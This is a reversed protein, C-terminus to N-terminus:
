AHSVGESLQIQKKHEKLHSALNRIEILSHCYPCEAENELGKNFESDRSSYSRSPVTRSNQKESTRSARIRRRVNNQPIPLRTPIKTEEIILILGMRLASLLDRELRFKIDYEVGEQIDITECRTNLRCTRLARVKRTIV